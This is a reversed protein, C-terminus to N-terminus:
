GGNRLTINEIAFDILEIGIRNLKNELSNKIKITLASNLIGTDKNVQKLESLALRLSNLAYEAVIDELILSDIFEHNNIQTDIFRIPNLLRYEFVGHTGLSVNNNDTDKVIIRKATGWKGRLLVKDSKVYYIYKFEKDLRFEHKDKFSEVRGDKSILVLQYGKPVEILQGKKYKIAQHRSILHKPNGSFAVKDKKNLGFM